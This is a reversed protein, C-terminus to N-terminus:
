PKITKKIYSMYHPKVNYVDRLKNPYTNKLWHEDEGDANPQVHNPRVWKVVSSSYDDYHISETLAVVFGENKKTDFNKALNKFVEIDFIGRYLVQPVALDLVNAWELMDDYSLKNNNEDWIAFLYFFSDLDNYEISHYYSMNEGSFRWGEPIEHAIMSHLQKIWSRTFNYPSDISRAHFFSRLLTTNEGDMKISAVVEKGIMHEFNKLVKDDSHITGSFDFHFTRPHKHSEKQFM